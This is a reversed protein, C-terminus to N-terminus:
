HQTSHSTVTNAFLEICRQWVTSKLQQEFLERTDDNSVMHTVVVANVSEEDVVM